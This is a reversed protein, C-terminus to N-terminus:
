VTIIFTSTAINEPKFSDKSKLDLDLFYRLIEYM